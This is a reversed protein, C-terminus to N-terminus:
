SGASRMKEETAQIGAAFGSQILSGSDLMQRIEAIAAAIKDDADDAAAFERQQTISTALRTMGKSRMKVAREHQVEIIKLLTEIRREFKDM